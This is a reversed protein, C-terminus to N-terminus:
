KNEKEIQKLFDLHNLHIDIAIFLAAVEPSCDKYENPWDQSAMKVDGKNSHISLDGIM